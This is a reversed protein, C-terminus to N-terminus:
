ESPGVDEVTEVDQPPSFQFRSDLVSVNERQQSFRYDTKSGDVEEIQVRAIQHDPTIELLIQGVRDALGKPVGRLVVDGPM